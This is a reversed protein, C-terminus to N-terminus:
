SLLAIGNDELRSDLESQGGQDERKQFIRKGCYLCHLFRQHSAEGLQEPDFSISSSYHQLGSPEALSDTDSGLVGCSKLLFNPDSEPPFDCETKRLKTKSCFSFCTTRDGYRAPSGPKFRKAKHELPTKSCEDCVRGSDLTFISYKSEFCNSLM